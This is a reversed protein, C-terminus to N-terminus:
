GLRPSPLNLTQSDGVTSVQLNFRDHQWVYATSVDLASALCERCIAHLETEDQVLSSRRSSDTDNTLCFIQFSVHDPAPGGDQSQM